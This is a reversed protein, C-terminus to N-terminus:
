ATARLDASNYNVAFRHSSIRVATRGDESRMVFGTAQLAVPYASDYRAPWDFRMEIHAGIPLTRRTKFVVGDRSMDRTIGTNWREGSGRESVRYRLTLHVEFRRSQRRDGTSSEM